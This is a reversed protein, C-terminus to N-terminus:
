KFTVQHRIAVPFMDIGVTQIMKVPYILVILIHLCNDFFSDDFIWCKFHRINSEPSFRVSFIM